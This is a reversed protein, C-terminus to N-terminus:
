NEAPLGIRKLLSKWRPDARLAQFWISTNISALGPDHAAFAKDLWAFAEDPKGQMARIEACASPNDAGFLKEFDAATRESAAVDGSAHQIIAASSLRAFNGQGSLEDYLAYEAEAEKVEGLLIHINGLSLHAGAHNPEMSLLKRAVTEADSLRGAAVYAAALNNYVTLSLPDAALAQELLRITEPLRGLSFYIVAANGLVIISNPSAKLAREITKESAEFEWLSQQVNSMRSLAIPMEPDIELARTLAAKAEEIARQDEELTVALTSERLHVLGLEAWALAFDPSISLAREIMERAQRVNPSTRNQLVFRAQLVLDYADAASKDMRSGKALLTVRLERAVAKAIEDQISFVDDLSRDYTQSWRHFGDSVKVLQATIRIKGGAKRVSGELINAVHLKAGISRVDENKNKFMFSSTRGAVKLDPVQALVNLLEETLGDSFYEQEKDSSMNVFPLVAISNTDAVVPSSTDSPSPSQAHRVLWLAIALLLAGSLAIGLLVRRRSRGTSERMDERQKEPPVDERTSGFFQRQVNLDRLEVGIEAASQYRAEPDKKLCRAIITSLHDPLDTRRKTAPPPEDRLIASITEASSAAHFPHRGTVMEYLIVGLSFIDTRHDLPEGRLQEPSMYPMTGMVVGETTLDPNLYISDATPEDPGVPQRWPSPPAKALGFDLVKVRGDSTTMINSPKVDRHVIGKEHAAALADAIAIGVRQVEELSMGGPLILRQLSEGEILEMTLFHCAEVEEVSHITVINPHNLLAIAKAERQFRAVRDPERALTPSLVKLAVRRDLKEDHALYVEGMGGSGILSLIRYHALKAGIM